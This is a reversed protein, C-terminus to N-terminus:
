FIGKKFMEADEAIKIADERSHRRKMRKLIMNDGSQLSLHIHPLIRKENGLLKLIEDLIADIAAFIPDITAFMLAKNLEYIERIFASNQKHLELGKKSAEFFPKLFSIDGLTQSKWLDPDEEAAAGFDSGFHLGTAETGDANTTKGILSTDLAVGFPLNIPEAM